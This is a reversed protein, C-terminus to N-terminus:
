LLYVLKFYNSLENTNRIVATRGLPSMQGWIPGLAFNDCVDLLM